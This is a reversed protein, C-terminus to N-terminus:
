TLKVHKLSWEATLVIKDPFKKYVIGKGWLFAMDGESFSFKTGQQLMRLKQIICRVKELWISCHIWVAMSQNIKKKAMGLVNIWLRHCHFRFYLAPIPNWNINTSLSMSKSTATTAAHVHDDEQQRKGRNSTLGAAAQDRLRQASASYYLFAGWTIMM